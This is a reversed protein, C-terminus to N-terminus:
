ALVIKIHGSIHRLTTYSESLWALCEPSAAIAKNAHAVFVQPIWALLYSSRTSTRDGEDFYAVWTGCPPAGHVDFFNASEREAAGNPRAQDPFWVLLQGSIGDLTIDGVRAMEESRAAVLSEVSSWRDAPLPHPILRAPRLCGRVSQLNAHQKCWMKVEEIRLALDGLHTATKAPRNRQLQALLQEAQSQNMCRGDEEDNLM